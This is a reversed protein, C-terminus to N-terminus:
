NQDYRVAHLIFSDFISFFFVFQSVAVSPCGVSSYISDTLAIPLDFGSSISNDAFSAVRRPSTREACARTHLAESMVMACIM